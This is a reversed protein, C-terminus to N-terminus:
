FTTSLLPSGNTEGERFVLVADGPAGADMPVSEDLPGVWYAVHGEADPDGAFRMFGIEYREGERELLCVYRVGDTPEPLSRSVIALLNLEAPGLLVAGAPLGAQDTLPARTTGDLELLDSVRGLVKELEVRATTDPAVPSAPATLGLPGGLAAGLVFLFVAAAAVALFVRFGIGDGDKGGPLARMGRRRAAPSTAPADAAAAAGDALPPAGPESPPTAGATAVSAAATPPPM